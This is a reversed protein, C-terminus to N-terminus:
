GRLTPLEAVVRVGSGNAPGITLRGGLERARERMTHIGVREGNPSSLGHGDDTVCAAQGPSEL